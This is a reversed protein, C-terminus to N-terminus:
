KLKDAIEIYNFCPKSSVVSSAIIFKQIEETMNIHIWLQSSMSFTIGMKCGDIENTTWGIQEDKNKGRKGIMPEWTYSAPDLILYNSPILLWDYTILDNERSEDRIIFSYYEFNKRKNIEQIIEEPTGYKKSNCVTTLRYSSIDINKKGNSYKGSKNSIGGLACQIDMGPAHSGNSKSQVEIGVSTFLNANIDEWIKEIIPSSNILHYGKVCKKFNEELLKKNCFMEINMKNYKTQVHLLIQIIFIMIFTILKKKYCNM